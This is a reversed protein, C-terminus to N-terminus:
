AKAGGTFPIKAETSKSTPFVGFFCHRSDAVLDRRLFRLNLGRLERLVRLPVFRYPRLSLGLSEGYAEITFIPYTSFIDM